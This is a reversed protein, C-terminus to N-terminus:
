VSQQPSQGGGCGADCWSRETLQTSLPVYRTVSCELTLPSPKAESSLTHAEPSPIGAKEERGGGRERVCMRVCVCVCVKFCLTTLQFWAWM